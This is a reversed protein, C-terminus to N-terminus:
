PFYVGHLRHGQSFPVRILDFKPQKSINKHLTTSKLAFTHYWQPISLPFYSTPFLLPFDYPTIFIRPAFFERGSPLTRDPVPPLIKCYGILTSDRNIMLYM